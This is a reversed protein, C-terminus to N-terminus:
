RQLTGWLGPAGPGGFLPEPPLGVRKPTPLGSLESGPVRCLAAEVLSTEQLADAREAPPSDGPARLGVAAGPHARRASWPVLPPRQLNGLAGREWIAGAVCGVWNSVPGLSEPRALPVSGRVSVFPRLLPGDEQPESIGRVGGGRASIPTFRGWPTEENVEGAQVAPIM